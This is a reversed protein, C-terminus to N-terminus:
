AAYCLSSLDMAFSLEMLLFSRRLFSTLFCAAFYAFSFATASSWDSSSPSRHSARRCSASIGRLPFGVRTRLRQVVVPRGQPSVYETRAAWAAVVREVFEGARRYRLGHEPEASRGFNRAAVPGATTVVNWGFRGGSLHDLDGLRGALEAPDNYSSSLQGKELQSDAAM